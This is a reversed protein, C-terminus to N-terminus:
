TPLIQIQEFGRDLILKNDVVVLHDSRTDSSILLVDKIKSCIKGLSDCEFVYYSPYSEGFKETYTSLALHYVKNQYNISMMHKISRGDFKFGISTYTLVICLGLSTLVAIFRYLFRGNPIIYVFSLIGGLIAIC